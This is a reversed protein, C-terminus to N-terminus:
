EEAGVEHRALNAVYDVDTSSSSIDWIYSKAVSEFDFDELDGYDERHAEAEEVVEAAMDDLEQMATQHMEEWRSEAAENATDVAEDWLESMNDIHEGGFVQDELWGTGAIDYDHWMDRDFISEHSQDWYLEAAQEGVRMAADREASTLGPPGVSISDGFELVREMYEPKPDQNQKGQVQEFRTAGRKVEMTAHPKGEADRLSYVVTDGSAVNSCYSGVCHQMQEGEDVLQDKQTLKQVTWGDDWSFVVEGPEVEIDPEFTELAELAELANTKNLDIREQQQWLALASGKGRLEQLLTLYATPTGDGQKVDYKKARNLERAVWPWIPDSDMREAIGEPKKQELSEIIGNMLDLLSLTELHALAGRRQLEDRVTRFPDVKGMFDQGARPYIIDELPTDPGGRWLLERRKFFQQTGSRDRPERFALRYWGNARASTNRPEEIGALDSLLFFTDLVVDPSRPGYQKAVFKLRKLPSNKTLM